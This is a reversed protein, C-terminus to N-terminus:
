GQAYNVEERSYIPLLSIRVHLGSLLGDLARVALLVGSAGAKNAYITEQVGDGRAVVDTANTANVAELECDFSVSICFNDFLHDCPDILTEGKLGVLFTVDVRDPDVVSGLGAGGCILVHRLLLQVRYDSGAGALYVNM